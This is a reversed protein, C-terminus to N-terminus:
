SDAETHYIPVGFSAKCLGKIDVFSFLQIATTCEKM